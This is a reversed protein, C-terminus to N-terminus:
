INDLSKKVKKTKRNKGMKGSPGSTILGIYMLNNTGGKLFEGTYYQFKLGTGKVKASVFIYPNVFPSYKNDFWECNLKDKTKGKDGEIWIKEKHHLTFDVGGGFDIETKKRFDGIRLGLPVGIYYNRARRVINNTLGTTRDALGVNRLTLGSFLAVKKTVNYNYRVGTNLFASFRVNSFDNPYMVWSFIFGDDDSTTYTGGATYKGAANFNLFPIKFGFSSSTIAFLAITIMLKKM